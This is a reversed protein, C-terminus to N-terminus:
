STYRRHWSTGRPGGGITGGGTNGGSFGAPTTLDLSTLKGSNSGMLRNATKSVDTVGILVMAAIVVIMVVQLAELGADDGHFKRISNLKSTLV